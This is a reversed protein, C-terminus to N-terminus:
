HQLEEERQKAGEERLLNKIHTHISYSVALSSIQLKKKRKKKKKKKKKKKRQKKKFSCGSLFFSLFKHPRFIKSKSFVGFVVAKRRTSM